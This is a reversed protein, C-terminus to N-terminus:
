LFYPFLRGGTAWFNFITLATYVTILVVVLIFLILLIINLKNLGTTKGVFYVKNKIIHEINLIDTFTATFIGAMMLVTILFIYASNALGFWGTADLVDCFQLIGISAYLSVILLLIIEWKDKRECSGINNKLRRDRIFIYFSSCMLLIIAIMCLIVSVKMLPVPVGNIIIGTRGLLWLRGKTLLPIFISLGLLLELCGVIMWAISSVTFKHAARKLFIKKQYEFGQMDNNVETM